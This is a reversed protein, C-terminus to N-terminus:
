RLQFKIPLVMRVPVPIGNQIGGKWGNMKGIVRMAEKDCDPHIGRLVKVDTIQGDGNVVFSVFVTGDVGIRRASSPFRTHKQIFKMMAAAGGEYEPMVQVRDYPGTIKIPTTATGTVGEGIGGEIGEGPIDAVPAEVFPINTDTPIDEVPTSVVLVSKSTSKAKPPRPGAPALPIKKVLPPLTFIHDKIDRVPPIIRPVRDVTREAFLLLLAIFAISIGSGLMVRKEYAKRIAYAGYFQNRSAFVVDDWNRFVAVKTEM